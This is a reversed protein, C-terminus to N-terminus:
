LRARRFPYLRRPVRGQRVALAGALALSLAAALLATVGAAPLVAQVALRTPPSQITEHTDIVECHYVGDDELSVRPIELVPGTEGPLASGAKVADDFHWQYSRAGTGGAVAVSMSCPDGSDVTILADPVATFHLHTMQYGAASVQGTALPWGATDRVAGTTGVALRVTGDWAGTQVTVTYSAGGGTISQV